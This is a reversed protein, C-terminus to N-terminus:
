GLCEYVEKRWLSYLYERAEWVKEYEELKCNPKCEMMSEFIATDARDLKVALVTATHCPQIKIAVVIIAAIVITILVFYKM